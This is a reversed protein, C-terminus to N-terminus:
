DHANGFPEFLLELDFPDAVLGAHVLFGDDKGHAIGIRNRQRRGLPDDHFQGIRGGNRDLPGVLLLNALKGRLNAVSARGFWVLALANAIFVFLDAALFALREGAASLQLPPRNQLNDTQLTPRTKSDWWTARDSEFVRGVRRIPWFTQTGM